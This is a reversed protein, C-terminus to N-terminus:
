NMEIERGARRGEKNLVLIKRPQSLENESSVPRPTISKSAQPKLLFQQSSTSRKVTPLPKVVVGSLDRNLKFGPQVKRVPQRASNVAAAPQSSATKLGTHKTAIQQRQAVIRASGKALQNIKAVPKVSQM